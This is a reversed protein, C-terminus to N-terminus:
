KFFALESNTLTGVLLARDLFKNGRECSTEPTFLCSHCAAWHLSDQSVPEHEGCLPDSACLRAQELAQAIHYGLNNPEGLSVLGGMTGESDPTATYILIGAQPGHEDTPKKSYIRERLSASNYGCAISLQRILAHALSHLMLYRMSPTTFKKPDLNRRALWDGYALNVKIWRKSVAAGEEWSQLISEQFQIFIGEGRTETTPVWKPKNQSLSVTKIQYSEPEDAFDGPSQIRTFGILSRVERMKELLVIQAFYQEFGLPSAVPRLRFYPTNQKVDAQSFVQWEPTKLDVIKPKEDEEDPEKKRESIIAWIDELPYKTLPKFDSKAFTRSMIKLEEINAVEELDSWFQSVLQELESTTKPLSLASLTVSFWSNSAGLLITKMQEKCDDDFDRLHPNRARCRPMHLKGSEGFAESLSRPPLNSCKQCKVMIDTTSGSVGYEDLKLPGLCDSQGRHVFYLWPFDDLHGGSCAVLFRVPIVIPEKKFPTQCNAHVYHVENPRYPNYKIQFLKSELPALLRCRPCVMWSPFPAVPVGVLDFEGTQNGESPVFPPPLLQKVQNGLKLKVAALLREEVLEQAQDPNWEDLGMILVSLQPLDAIAGIGYTFLLQSPRIDGVKHRKESM